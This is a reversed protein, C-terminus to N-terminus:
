DRSASALQALVDRVQAATEGVTGENRITYASRAKKLALPAQNAERRALENPGWGRARAREQRVQPSTEIFVCVDCNEILGSELLLPVDLLVSDGNGQAAALKDLLRKRVLPHLIAELDKKAAPDSFVRQALEARDLSGDKALVREGFRAVVQRVVGPDADVLRAEQDADLHVLGHAAFQAAVTSKGSAIGGLLGIVIPRPPRFRAPSEPHQDTEM